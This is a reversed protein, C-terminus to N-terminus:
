CLNGLFGIVRRATSPRPGPEPTREAVLHYAQLRNTEFAHAGGCLFLRFIRYTEEGWGAVIDDKAAELRRAWELMTLGYDRTERAVSHIEFGHCLLEATVDQLTMFTSTGHWIYERSFSSLAFKELAASGDLYIRGGPKLVDWVHATFQRYNPIHEIVGCAVVCDYPEEPKHDFFDQVFVEGPLDNKAIIGRIYRASDETRTLTTVHVARAGCYQTVAGWGGGIDLVRMGPQLDLSAFISELKHESAEEITEDPRQFLGQSSFRFRKDLFTLYLDDGRGYYENVAKANTTATRVFDYLFRIRQRLPMQDKLTQRASLLLGLDGEVDIDGQVYARGVALETTPTYLAQESRFTVRVKPEGFGFPVVTDDPLQVEGPIDLEALIAPLGTQPLASGSSPTAM